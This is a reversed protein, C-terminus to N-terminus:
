RDSPDEITDDEVLMSWLIVLYNLADTLRGEIEESEVSRTAVWSLIAQIHKLFFVSWVQYKDINPDSLMEALASFNANASVKGDEDATYATYDRGKQSLVPLMYKKVINGLFEERDEVTIIAM